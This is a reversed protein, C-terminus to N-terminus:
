SHAKTRKRLAPEIHSRSEQEEKEEKSGRESSELTSKNRKFEGKAPFWNIRGQEEGGKGMEGIEHRAVGKRLKRRKERKRRPTL